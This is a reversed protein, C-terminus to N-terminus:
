LDLVKFLKEVRKDQSFRDRTTLLKTKWEEILETNDLVKKMAQYLSEDDMNTLIGCEAESIIEEGGSCNTTILPVGLMIAETCATSYGEAFSSCVFVDAKSTYAHPNSKVGTFTVVDDINLDHARKLLETHQPGDGVIWFYFKYGEKKLREIIDLLRMLGKELSHRGVTIFLVGDTPKTLEILEKGRERIEIDDVPNYNYDVRLSPVEKKLRIANSKSVCVVHGIAEYYSKYTVGEDYGHMWAHKTANSRHPTAAIIKTALGYQFAIQIDYKEINLLKSYLSSPLLELLRVFGRFYFGFVKKVRVKNSLRQLSQPHFQFLPMITVDIDSRQALINAIDVACRGVGNADTLANFIMCIKKM